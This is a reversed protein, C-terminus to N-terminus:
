QRAAFHETMAQSQTQTGSAKGTAERIEEDHALRRGVAPDNAYGARFSIARAVGALREDDGHCQVLVAKVLFRSGAGRDREVHLLRVTAPGVLAAPHVGHPAARAELRPRDHFMIPQRAVLLEQGIDIRAHEGARSPLFTLPGVRSRRDAFTGEGVAQHWPTKAIASQHVVCVRVADEERVIDPGHVGIPTRQFRRFDEVSGVIRRFQFLDILRGAIIQERGEVTARNLFLVEAPNGAHGALCGATAPSRQLM